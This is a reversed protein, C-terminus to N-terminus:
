HKISLSGDSTLTNYTVTAATYWLVPECAHVYATLKKGSAFAALAMSYLHDYQPHTAKVFIMDSTTCGAANGFGGSLMFGATGAQVTNIETPSAANSFGGACANASALALVLYFIAKM